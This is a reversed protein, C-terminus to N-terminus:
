ARGGRANRTLYVFEEVQLALNENTTMAQSGDRLSPPTSHGHGSLTHRAVVVSSPCLATM